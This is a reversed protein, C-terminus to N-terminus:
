RPVPQAARDSPLLSYMVLDTHRGAIKRYSRLVGETKFGAREAVRQSAPNSSPALIQVRALQLEDFAWEAVLLVAKAASGKGRAHSAVWYGFEARLAEEDFRGLSVAGELRGSTDTMAFTVRRGAEHDLARERVWEVAAQRTFSQPRMVWRLIDPDDHCAEFISEADTAQLERLVIGGGALRPVRPLEVM